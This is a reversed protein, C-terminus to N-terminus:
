CKTNHHCLHRSNCWPNWHTWQWSCLKLPPYGYLQHSTHVCMLPHRCSLFPTTWTTYLINHSFNPFIILLNPFNTLNYALCRGKPYFMIFNPCSPSWIDWQFAHQFLYSPAFARLHFKSTSGNTVWHTTWISSCMCPNPTTSSWM